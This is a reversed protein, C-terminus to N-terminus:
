RSRWHWLWKRPSPAPGEVSVAGLDSKALLAELDIPESAEVGFRRGSVWAVRGFITLGRHRVEVTEGVAPPTNFKAMFGGSSINGIGIEPWEEGVRMWAKVFVIRREERKSKRFM